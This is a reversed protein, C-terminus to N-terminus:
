KLLSTDRVASQAPRHPRCGPQSTRLSAGHSLMNEVLGEPALWWDDSRPGTKKSDDRRSPATAVMDTAVRLREDGVALHRDTGHSQQENGDTDAARHRRCISLLQSATAKMTTKSTRLLRRPLVGLIPMGVQAQRLVTSGFRIWVWCIRGAFESFFSNNNTESDM